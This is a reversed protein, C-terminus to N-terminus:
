AYYKLSANLEEIASLNIRQVDAFKEVIADHNDGSKALAELALLPEQLANLGVAVISSRMNHSITILRPYDKASLAGEMEAIQEQQQSIFDTIMEHISEKNGNFLETLFSLNTLNETKSNINKAPIEEASTFVPIWKFVKERLRKETYPKGLYDNMGSQYCQEIEEKYVNASLGVVPLTLQLNERIYKTADYGNMVPMQIDMLVLQFNTTALKEVAERGNGASTIKCGMNQLMVSALRQNIENDDVLLVHVNGKYDIDEVLQQRTESISDQPKAERLPITFWFTSGPVESTTETYSEVGLHGGMREVLEKVISLGLGSGGFQRNISSDAQTFSQFVLGLKEQPIGIGTDIVSVKLLPTQDDMVPAEATFRIKIGGQKTFKLANGILNIIIQSLKSADGIAYAPLNDDFLLEFQLGKENARFRYPSLNSTLLERLHFPEEQLEFKGEEIKTLDLVDGILKLLMEGSSSIYGLYELSESSLHQKKLVNAFGLIASIPTRIEHSMNALFRSKSQNAREAIEKADKLEQEIAMRESINLAFGILGRPNIEDPFVYHEFYSDKGKIHGHSIFNGKGTQLVERITDEIHPFLGFANQGKLENDTYGLTSLGKGVSEKITGDIDVRYAIVPMNELIGQLMQTRRKLDRNVGRLEIEKIVQKALLKLATKQEKTLEREKTDLICLTGLKYGSSTKLPYGAYFHINPDGTVLPNDYFRPDTTADEVIFIEDKEETIV